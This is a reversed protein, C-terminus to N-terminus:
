KRLHKLILRDKLRDPLFRRLYASRAGHGVLYRTKPKISFLAQEIVKVVLDPSSSNESIKLAFEEFRRMIKGYYTSAEQPMGNLEESSKNLSKEWIPTAISGPQIISVHIGWESLEMRLADSFVEVCHKSACYPSLIPTVTIGSISSINVIRGKSKRLFPVCVQVVRLLGFVNVEFQARVKDMDVFELPGAAVIGANSILGQLPDKSNQLYARLNLLDSESTVDLQITSIKGSGQTQSCLAKVREADADSRVGSLVHHGKAVLHLVCALGIGTSTGTVLIM